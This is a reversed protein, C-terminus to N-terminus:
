KPKSGALVALEYIQFFCGVDRFGIERLWDLQIDVSALINAETDERNVFESRIQDRSRSGGSELQQAYLNDVFHEEFLAHIVPSAPQVHEINVFVGGPALLNFIERYIRRKNEDPQHHISFGSVIADFPGRGRVADAWMPDAYDLAEFRATPYAALNARAADIMSPSFDVFTGEADPYRQLLVAGLTGSGCGLDLFHRLPRSSSAVLRLMVELQLEGGPIARRVNNVFRRALEPSRWLRDLRATTTRETSM